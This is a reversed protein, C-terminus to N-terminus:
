TLTYVKLFLLKDAFFLNVFIKPGTYKGILAYGICFLQGFFTKPAVNGYGLFYFYKLFIFLHEGITTIVTFCFLM